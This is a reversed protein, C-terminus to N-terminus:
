PSLVEVKTGLTACMSSVGKLINAMIKRKFDFFALQNVRCETEFRMMYSYLETVTKSDRFSRGSRQAVSKRGKECFSSLGDEIKKLRAKIKFLYDEGDNVCRSGVGCVSTVQGSANKRGQDFVKSLGLVVEEMSNASGMRDTRVLLNQIETQINQYSYDALDQNGLAKTMGEQWYASKLITPDKLFHDLKDPSLEKEGKSNLDLVIGQLFDPNGNVEADIEQVTKTTYKQAFGAINKALAATGLAPNFVYGVGTEIVADKVFKEQDRKKKVDNLAVQASDYQVLMCRLDFSCKKIFNQLGYPTVLCQDYGSKGNQEDLSKVSSLFYREWLPSACNAAGNFDAKEKGGLVAIYESWDVRDNVIRQQKSTADLLESKLDNQTKSLIKSLDFINDSRTPALTQSKQTDKLKDSLEECPNPQGSLKENASAEISIAFENLVNTSSKHVKPRTEVDRLTQNSLNKAHVGAWSGWTLVFSLIFGRM